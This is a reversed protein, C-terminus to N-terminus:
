ADLVSKFFEYFLFFLANAPVKHVLRPVSGRLFAMPGGEKWVTSVCSIMSGGYLASNTDTQLRTKIVDMPNTVWSGVGGAFGGLMADRLPSTTSKHNSNSETVAKSKSFHQQLSEYLLLTVVAYPVDRIMQIWVSGKPFLLQSITSPHHMMERFLSWTNDYVGTQLHQKMVEYPVRTISAVTNGIAASLAISVTTYQRGRNTSLLRQKCYSYVGFYIGVSPMSGIMTVGLGAYLNKYGGPKSIIHQAADYLSLSQQSVHYQQVTKMADIPQLIAKCCAAACASAFANKIGNVWASTSKSSTTSVTRTNTTSAHLKSIPPNTTNVTVVNVNKSPTTTRYALLSTKIKSFTNRNTDRSSQHQDDLRQKRGRHQNINSVVPIAYVSVAFDYLFSYTSAFCLYTTCIILQVQWRIMNMNTIVIIGTTGVSSRYMSLGRNVSTRLVTALRVFPHTSDWIIPSLTM